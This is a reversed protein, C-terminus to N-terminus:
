TLIEKLLNKLEVSTFPKSIYHTFGKALFESKDAKSAYATVAVIPIKKYSENKKIRQMLEIGDMGRGLNIDLLLVDYQKQSVLELANDANTATELNYYPKLIITIFKSAVEDDEVFLVKPKSDGLSPLGNTFKKTQTEPITKTEPEAALKHFELTDIPLNITFVSGKNEESVLSIQGGLLEVYKKTITLGLGTGEFSRNFGESAQRFEQWIVGQKEKPIGIGSDEVKISLGPKNNFSIKQVNLKIFGDNTYKVANNVLNNLVDELLKDDSKIITSNEEFETDLTTNNLKASSQFSIAVQRVLACVDFNRYKPELKDFELRTLNLIKNLTETLRKSSRLIQNVYEQLDSNELSDKLIEAYGLIGVFPTRLEHSMNAFFYSKLKVIEEAKEKAETLEKIMVKRDTIDRIVSLLHVSDNETKVFSNTLEIWITKGSKLKAEGEFNKSITKAKLKVKLGNLSKEIEQNHYPENYPKGIIQEKSFGFLNCYANNVNIIIGNEDILRMADVSNEWVSRFEEESKILKEEMKKKETIDEKVAIFNIIRGNMDFIASIVVDEWFLEGNKKKNHLEGKWSNGSLITEWLNKYFEKTLEGSKLIRPNQGKAEDFSYGTVETFKPNVYEINGKTDTIVITVPSQEVARSLSRLKEEALRRSSIDRFNIVVSNVNKDNLLNTFIAEIWIWSGNTHKMRYELVPAYAPNITLRKVKFMVSTFDDPHILSYPNINVNENLPYGFIKKATPSVYKIEGEASVLVIGDPANEIMKQFFIKTISLEEEARKRLTIDRTINILHPQGNLEIVASSMLSDLIKGNKMRFSIEHNEAIGNEKIAKILIERDEPNVWLNIDFSTKGLVEEESYGTIKVFSKNVSVYKGDSLRTISIADPNTNYSKRFREESAKFEKEAKKQETIDRMFSQYTGDPMQKSIMDVFIITGDKRQLTREIKRILGKNLEDYRLPNNILTEKPFLTSINVGLIEEESYGTLELAKQNITIINGNKDGQFFAEPAFDLLMRHKEESEKIAIEFKKRDTIDYITLLLFAKSEIYIIESSVLATILNGVKGKGVAEYNRISRKEKLENVIYKRDEPNAWLGLDLGYRGIIEQKGYGFIKEFGDNVEIIESSNIDSLVIGDSSSNFIKTFRENSELLSKEKEREKTQDRFVLVVGIINGEDDRIPSGSDAIPIRVGDKRVLITHNALGIITGERLVKDVPNEVINNTHENRIDFIDNLLKGGSEKEIWGTLMEAVNNMHKVFGKVDTTIVADGISYLTTRFEEKTEALEKEKLFLNKYINSQRFKYLYLFLLVFLLVAGFVILVTTIGKYFLDAYIEDKDVKSIIYWDTGPIKDVAALVKNNRYDIGEVIGKGVEIGVVGAYQKEKLPITILMEAKENFRKNSIVRIEKDDKKFILSEATKSPTPWKQILPFLYDNPNILLVFTGIIKGSNDKIPSVIELHIRIHGNSFYLDTFLISDTAVSNKIYGLTTSDLQKVEPDLSFLIKGHTDTVLLNKYKHREKIPLLTNFLYNKAITDGPDAILFATSRIFKGVTPFFKAESIREDKWKIIQDIKLASIANLYEYKEQHIRKTESFYYYYAVLGLLISIAFAILFIRWKSLKIMMFVM